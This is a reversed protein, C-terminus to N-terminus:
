WDESTNINKEYEAIINNFYDKLDKMMEVAKSKSLGNGMKSTKQDTKDGMFPQIIPINKRGGLGDAYADDCTIDYIDIKCKNDKTQIKVTYKYTYFYGIGMGAKREMDKIAKVQIVNINEDANQTVNKASNWFDAVFMKSKSFLESATGSSEVIKSFKFDEANVLQFALLSILFLFIKKM